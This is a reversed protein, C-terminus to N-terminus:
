PYVLITFDVAPGDVLGLRVRQRGRVTPQAQLTVTAPGPGAGVRFVGILRDGAVETAEPSPTLQRLRVGEAYDRGIWLRLTGDGITERAVHVQLTAQAQYRQLREYEVWLRTERTGARGRSLPGDGFLGLLGAVLILVFAAWGVRQVAWEWRQFRLDQAVDLSGVRTISSPM